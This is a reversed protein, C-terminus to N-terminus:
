IQKKKVKKGKEWGTPGCRKNRSKIKKPGVFTKLMFYAGGSTAEKRTLFPLVDHLGFVLPGIHFAAGLNFQGQTNLYIPAYFGVWHKEWRPTITLNTYDGIKSNTWKLSNLNVLVSSNLYFGNNLNYDIDVKLSTPLGVTYDGDLRNLDIMTSLSDRFIDPDEWTGDLNDLDIVDNTTNAATAVGSSEGLQYKIRGVDLLALGIRYKYKAVYETQKNFDQIIKTQSPNAGRQSDYYEYQIGLDLGLNFKNGRKYKYNDDDIGDFNDSYGYELLFDPIQLLKAGVNAFNPTAFNAFAAANGYLLKATVGAKIKMDSHKQVIWAYSIAHERWSHFDLRFKQNSFQEDFFESNDFGDAMANALDGTLGRANFYSRVRSSFGIASSNNLKIMFSLAMVEINAMGYKINNDRILEGDFDSFNLFPNDRRLMGYNNDGFFNAGIFVIDFRYPNNALSAPNHTAGSIGAYNGSNFGPYLQAYGGFTALIFVFIAQARKSKALYNYLYM